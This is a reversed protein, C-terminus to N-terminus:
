QPLLLYWCGNFSNAMLVFTTSKGLFSAKFIKLIQEAINQALM